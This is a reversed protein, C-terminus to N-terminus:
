DGFFTNSRVPTAHAESSTILGVAPAVYLKGSARAASIKETRADMVHRVPEEGLSNAMGKTILDLGELEALASFDQLAKEHWQYFAAIRRPELNWREAFNEGATTENEVVYHIKGEIAIKNIFHPMMRITDVLVDLETDFSFKTVCFEYSKAALTTIIISIPAIDAEIDFFMVDRHRKLLQVVRRLIGRRTARSPFPAVANAVADMAEAKRFRFQPQLAARQEFWVRYGTPNTPKWDKAKKDPVLVGQNSCEPNPITPSIDLHFERAYNLRWCRKKEELMLSYRAHERLREGIIAKLTAPSESHSYDPVHCILDVDFDERGWPRVTTGLATSGHVYISIRKLIPNSSKSIWGGVSEYSTKASDNQAETLELDQCIEELFSYAESKRKLTHDSPPTRTFVQSM